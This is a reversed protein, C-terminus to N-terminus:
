FRFFGVCAGWVSRATAAAACRRLPQQLGAAALRLQQRQLRLSPLAAAAGTRRRIRVAAAAAAAAAPSQLPRRLTTVTRWVTLAAVHRATPDSELAPMATAAACSPPCCCCCPCIQRFGVMVCCLASSLWAADYKNPRRRSSSPPCRSTRCATSTPRRCHRRISRRRTSRTPSWLHHRPADCTLSPPCSKHQMFAVDTAASM